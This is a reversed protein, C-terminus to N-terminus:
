DEELTNTMEREVVNSREEEEENVIRENETLKPFKLNSVCNLPTRQIPLKNQREGRRETFKKVM